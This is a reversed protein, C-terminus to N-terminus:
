SCGTHSPQAFHSCLLCGHCGCACWQGVSSRAPCHMM